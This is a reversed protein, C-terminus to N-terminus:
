ITWGSSSCNLLHVIQATNPKNMVCRWHYCKWSFFWRWQRTSELLHMGERAPGPVVLCLRVILMKKLDATKYSAHAPCFSGQFISICIISFSHLVLILNYVLTVKFLIDYCTTIVMQYPWKADSKWSVVSSYTASTLFLLPSRAPRFTQYGAHPRCEEEKESESSSRRSTTGLFDPWRLIYNAVSQHLLGHQCRFTIM